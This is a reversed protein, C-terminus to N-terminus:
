DAREAKLSAVIEKFKRGRDFENLFMGFSTCGPSFLITEGAVAKRYAEQVAKELSNYPGQYPIQAEELLRKLKATGTGELLYIGRSKGILPLLPTFDLNKDTGGTILRLPSTFSEIGFATAEPVTAASDNYFRIGRIEGCYELRHEVGPFEALRKRIIELPIGWLKLALAAFLLNKRQHNGLINVKEPLIEEQGDPLAAIGKGEQLYAGRVDQPLPHSSVAYPTGPTATLFRRGYPDDYHLLTADEKSQYRFIIEKDRVYTEMDPYRDQHDPLICTIVAVKPKLIRPDPLDALQWSSLELVVPTYPELDELFSLPSVTINGGLRAQPCVGQLGYHIASVTTSKGKSGTVALVPGPFYTLFLSIDTEVRKAVRLFPSDPRVAPNKVVLDASKFDEMDHKGLVYRIPFDKLAEISPKLVEESRLDTATVQAGRRAFFKAAEIGGGNLGLGMVTVKLGRFSELTNRLRM